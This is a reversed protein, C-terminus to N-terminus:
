PASFKWTARRKKGPPVRGDISPEGEVLTLGQTRVVLEFPDSVAEGGGEMDVVVTVTRTKADPVFFSYATWEGKGFRRWMKSGLQKANPVAELEDVAPPVDSATADGGGGGDAPTTDGGDATDPAATDGSSKCALVLFSALVATRTSRTM